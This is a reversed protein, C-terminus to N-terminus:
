LAVFEILSLCQLTALGHSLYFITIWVWAGPLISNPYVHIFIILHVAHACSWLDGGVPVTGPICSRHSYNGYILYLYIHNKKRTKLVYMCYTASCNYRTQGVEYLNFDWVDALGHRQKADILEIFIESVSPVFNLYYLVLFIIGHPPPPHWCYVGPYMSYSALLFFDYLIRFLPTLIRTLMEMVIVGDLPWSILLKRPSTKPKVVSLSFYFKINNCNQRGCHLDSCMWRRGTAINKYDDPVTQLIDSHSVSPLQEGGGELQRCRLKPLARWLKRHSLPIHRAFMPSTELFRAVPKWFLIAPPSISIHVGWQDSGGFLFSSFRRGGPLHRRMTSWSGSKRYWGTKVPSLYESSNGGKRSYQRYVLRVHCTVFIRLTEGKRSYQRYVLSVHCTVFIRLLKGRGVISDIYWGSM